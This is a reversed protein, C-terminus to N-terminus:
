PNFLDILTERNGASATTDKVFVTLVKEFAKASIELKNQNTIFQQAVQVTQNFITFSGKSNNNKSTSYFSATKGNPGEINKWSLIATEFPTKFDIFQLNDPNNYEEPFLGNLYDYYQKRGIIYLFGTPRYLYPDGPFINYYKLTKSDATATFSTIPPGYSGEITIKNSEILSRDTGNFFYAGRENYSNISDASFVPQYTLYKKDIGDVDVFALGNPGSPNNPDVEDYIIFKNAKEPHNSPFKLEANFFDGNNFDLTPNTFNKSNALANAFFMTVEANTTIGASKLPNVIYDNIDTITDTVTKSVGIDNLNQITINNFDFPLEALEEKVGINYISNNATLNTFEIPKIDLSANLDLNVDATISDVPPSIYKSQRLGSFNTTMHNPSISHTVNTILYAGNFFPVNQLDFYMMPQINMCGLADVQCTYSRTKYLKLLDTGQYTKQTAGRKDILDSLAKFYEGTEKHEQQNLSVNKFITQNQAGFAVRFAVLSFDSDTDKAKKSDVMDPPIEGNKFAFGDNDFYYNNTEKIDLVQSSSGVYICCYIPGTSNNKELVTQPRFIKAIERCDKYNIYTPLIQLLFSSDRLIKSIFFYVSTDQNNGLSLFSNLNIVADDGIDRWGRDIFKFYDILNKDSNDGCVNFAKETDSIWKDNINKFYNYIQLKIQNKNKENIEEEKKTTPGSQTNSNNSIKNTFLKSFEKIYTQIDSNTITLQKNIKNKNFIDPNLIIIEQTLISQNTLYRISSEFDIPTNSVYNNMNFEFFGNQNTNFSGSDVWSTFNNILTDKVSKPLGTLEDELKKDPSSFSKYYSIKTPYFEKSTQFISYKGFWNIPDTTKDYRWLLSGLYYTYLKPLRVIRAGSYNDNPYLVDLFAEKFNRFPITSLLLYARSYLSTQKDYFENNTFNDEFSISSNNPNFYTKNFYKGTQPTPTSANSAGGSTNLNTATNTTGLSNNTNTGGTNTTTTTTTTTTNAVNNADTKAKPNLDVDFLTTKRISDGIKKDNTNFINNGVNKDWVNYLLNTYLNNSTTYNTKYIIGGSNVEKNITNANTNDSIRTYASDQRISSWLDKSNTIIEPYSDAFLLYQNNVNNYDLGFKIDSIKPFDNTENLFYNNSNGKVINKKFFNTKGIISNPTFPITEKNIDEILNSLLMVTANNVKITEYANIADFRAYDSFLAGTSSDFKSYNQLLAIRTLIQETFYEKIGDENNLFRLNIFPNVNYDIPNFPYWNDTDTGSSKLSATSIQTLEKRKAIFNEFVREVFDYEPFAIKTVNQITGIYVETESGDSNKSYVSPWAIGKNKGNLKNFITPPIDTSINGLASKRASNLSSDESKKTIDYITEVMAQTNNAIIEFCKRITPKFLNEKSNSKNFLEQNFEFQVLDRQLKIINKLELIQKELEARQQRFDVIAVVTDELFNGNYFARNNVSEIFTNIDFNKNLDNVTADYNNKLYIGYQNNQTYMNELVNKLSFRNDNILENNTPNLQQPNIYEKWSDDGNDKFLSIFNQDSTTANARNPSNSKLYKTIKDVNGKIKTDNSKQKLADLTNTNRYKQNNNGSVYESYKKIVDNLAIIYTKFNNINITKILLFDRISFYNEGATLIGDNIVSTEIQDYNNEISFYNKVTEDENMQKSPQKGIATGIFSQIETLIALKGNLFKLTKFTDLETKLTEAEVQLKSIRIFFDDLKRIDLEGSKRLTNLNNSTNAPLTSNTRKFIENLKNYGEETNVTGVINGIVMDNLFAQQFGLFNASIDFNGTSGDFQSSWNTMHLCFDVKQGFYGKVSLTFVPYPMKFFLSYPSLIDKDGLVDFLASGRVDTFTMDVVPVFNAGYKINISKIGFGELVGASKTDGKLGGINTWDTTAYTEQTEPNLRGNDDYRIKTSIFNVEDEVGRNVFGEGNYTVRNRPIASFKVYIFMDEPPIIENKIPNPDVVFVRGEGKQLQKGSSLETVSECM